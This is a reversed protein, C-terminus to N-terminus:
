SALNAARDAASASPAARSQWKVFLIYGCQIFCLVDALIVAPAGILGGYATWILMSGMAFVLWMASIDTASRTRWTRVVQPTLSVTSLITGTTGLIEVWLEEM